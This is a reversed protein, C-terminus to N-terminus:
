KVLLLVRLSRSRDQLSKLRPSILFRKRSCYLTKTSAKLFSFNLWNSSAREGVRKLTDRCCYLVELPSHFCFFVQRIVELFSTLTLQHLTCEQQNLGCSCTFDSSPSISLCTTGVSKESCSQQHLLYSGCIPVYRYVSASWTWWTRGTVWRCQELVKFM